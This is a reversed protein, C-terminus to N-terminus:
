RVATKPIFIKGPGIGDPYVRSPREIIAKVSDTESPSFTEVHGDTFGAHLKIRLLSIDTDGDKLWLPSSFLGAGAVKANKFQECSMYARPSRYHNYGFYDSVLMGSTYRSGSDKIPGVFFRGRGDLVAVYNWWFCYTGSFPPNRLGTQPDIWDDGAQWAQQLYPYDSPANTCYMTKAKEIYGNLYAAVTRHTSPTRKRVGAMMMPETWNWTSGQGITAVSDPFRGYNDSAYLSLAYVINKQNQTNLLSLAKQHAKSLAPVTIALLLSIIGLVVLLEILTFASEPKRAM